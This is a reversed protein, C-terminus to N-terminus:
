LSQNFRQNWKKSWGRILYVAILYAIANHIIISLIGLEPNDGLVAYSWDIGNVESYIKEGYTSAEDLPYVFSQVLSSIAGFGIFILLYWRMRKVRYSAVIDMLPVFCFVTQWTLSVPGKAPM